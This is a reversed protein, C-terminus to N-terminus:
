DHEDRADNTGQYRALRDVHIVKPKGRLGKKIRYTVDNIRTVVTYPGEWRAQLKPCKGKKPLPNHIWELTGEEYGNTNANRDYRTKMRKSTKLNNERVMRHVEDKKAIREWPAEINYFQLKGISRTQPGKVSQSQARLANGVGIKSM